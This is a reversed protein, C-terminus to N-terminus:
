TWDPQEFIPVFNGKDDRVYYMQHQKMMAMLEMRSPIRTAAKIHGDKTPRGRGVGTLFYDHLALVDDESWKFHGFGWDGEQEGIKYPREIAGKHLHKKITERHRNLLICVEKTDFAQQSNQKVSSLSFELVRNEIYGWARLLDFARDTTLTRYLKGDIYFYKRQHATRQLPKVSYGKGAQGAM